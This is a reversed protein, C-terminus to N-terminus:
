RLKQGISCFLDHIFILAVFKETKSLLMFVFVIYMMVRKNNGKAHLACDTPCRMEVRCCTNFSNYWSNSGKHLSSIVTPLNIAPKAAMHYIPNRMQFCRAWASGTSKKGKSRGKPIPNHISNKGAIIAITLPTNYGVTEAVLFRNFF